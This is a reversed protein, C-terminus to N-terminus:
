LINIRAFEGHYKIAAENYAIAAEIETKFFGLHMKRGNVGIHAQFRNWTKRKHVGKFKNSGTKPKARNMASQSNTSYRLNHRQNNLGNGDIHDIIFGNEKKLIMQHMKILTRLKPNKNKNRVAYLAIKPKEVHWKWQNLWDFDEDDVM